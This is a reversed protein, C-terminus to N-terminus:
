DTPGLLKNFEERKKAAIESRRCEGPVNVIFGGCMEKIRSFIRGYAMNSPNNFEKSSLNTTIILPKQSDYRADIIYGLHELTHENGREIGFDDIVLLDLRALRGLFWKKRSFEAEAMKHILAPITTMYVMPENHSSPYKRKKIDIIANAIAAAHFSKGTGVPGRFLIGINKESVAAWNAVYKKCKDTIEPNRLDDHSMRIHRFRSDFFMSNRNLEVYEQHQHLLNKEYFISNKEKACACDNRKISHIKYNGDTDPETEIVEELWVEQCVTCTLVKTETTIEVTNTSDNSITSM